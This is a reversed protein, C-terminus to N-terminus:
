GVQHKVAAWHSSHTGGWGYGWVLIWGQWPTGVAWESGALTVKLASGKLRSPAAGMPQNKGRWGGPTLITQIQAGEPLQFLSWSISHPIAMSLLSM